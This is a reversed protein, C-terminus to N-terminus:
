RLFFFIPIQRAPLYSKISFRLESRECNKNPLHESLNVLPIPEGDMEAM